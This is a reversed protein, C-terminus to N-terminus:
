TSSSAQALFPPLSAAQGGVTGLGGRRFPFWGAQQGHGLSVTEPGGPAGLGTNTRAWSRRTCVPREKTRGRKVRGRCCRPRPDPRPAESSRALAAAPAPCPPVRLVDQGQGARVSTVRGDRVAPVIKSDQTHRQLQYRHCRPRQVRVACLAPGRARPQTQPVGLLGKLRAQRKTVPQTLHHSHGSVTRSQAVDDTDTQPKQPECLGM